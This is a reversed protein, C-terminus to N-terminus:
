RVKSPPSKRPVRNFSKKSAERRAFALNQIAQDLPPRVLLDSDFELDAWSGDLNKPPIDHLFHLCVAQRNKYPHEQSGSLCYSRDPSSSRM